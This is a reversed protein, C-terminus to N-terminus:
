AAVVVVVKVVELAEVRAAAARVGVRVVAGVVGVM